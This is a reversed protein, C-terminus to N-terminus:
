VTPEAGVIAVVTSFQPGHLKERRRFPHRRGIRDVAPLKNDNGDGGAGTQEGCAKAPGVRRTPLVGAPRVRCAPRPGWATAAPGISRRPLVDYQRQVASLEPRLLRCFQSRRSMKSLLRASTSLAFARLSPCASGAQLRM